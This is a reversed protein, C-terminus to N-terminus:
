LNLQLAILHEYTTTSCLGFMFNKVVDLNGFKKDNDSLVNMFEGFSLFLILYTASFFEQLILNSFYRNKDVNLLRLQTKAKEGTTM